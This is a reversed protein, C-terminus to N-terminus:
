CVEHPGRDTLEKSSPVATPQEAKEYELRAAAAEEPQGAAELAKALRLWAHRYDTLLEPCHAKALELVTRSLPISKAPAAHLFAEAVADYQAIAEPFLGLRALQEAARLHAAPDRHPEPPVSPRVHSRSPELGSSVALGDPPPLAITLAEITPLAQNVARRVALESAPADFWLVLVYVGAFSVAFSPPDGEADVWHVRGGQQLPKDTSALARRLISIVLDQDHFSLVRARCWLEYWADLVVANVAGSASSLRELAASLDRFEPVDPGLPM